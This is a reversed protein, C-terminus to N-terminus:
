KSPTCGLGLPHFSMHALLKLLDTVDTCGDGNYDCTGGLCNNPSDIDFQALWTLLDSVNVNFDGSGDCDWAACCLSPCHLHALMACQFDWPALCCAPDDSCVAANCVPDECGPTGNAACCPGTKPPDGGCAECLAAAQEACLSDWLTDCCFPDAACVLAECEPDECGPTAQPFCCDPGTPQCISCLVGAEAACQEDWEFTCCWIDILCVDAECGGHDCGTGPHAICCNSGAGAGARGAPVGAAAALAVIMM